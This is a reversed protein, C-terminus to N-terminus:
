KKKLSLRKLRLCHEFGMGNLTVLDNDELDIEEVNKFCKLHVETLRCGTLKISTIIEPKFQLDKKVIKIRDVFVCDWKIYEINKKHQKSGVKAYANVREGLTV